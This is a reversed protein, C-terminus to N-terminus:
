HSYDFFNVKLKERIVTMDREIAEQKRILAEVTQLDKGVEDSSVLAAKERIRECTDDIDRNFSHVELAASLQKRYENLKGQLADWSYFILLQLITTVSCM